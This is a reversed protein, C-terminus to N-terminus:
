NPFYFDWHNSIRQKGLGLLFIAAVVILLMLLVAKINEMEKDDFQIGHRQLQQNVQQLGMEAVRQAMVYADAAVAQAARAVHRSSINVLQLTLDTVSPETVPGAPNTAVPAEEIPTEEIIREPRIEEIREPLGPPIETTIPPMSPITVGAGINFVLQGSASTM